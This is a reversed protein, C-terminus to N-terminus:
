GFDVFAGSCGTRALFTIASCGAELGFFSPNTLNAAARRGGGELPGSSDRWVHKSTKCSIKVPEEGRLALLFVKLTSM